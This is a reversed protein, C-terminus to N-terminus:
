LAFDIKTCIGRNTLRRKEHTLSSAHFPGPCLIGHNRRAGGALIIASRLPSPPAAMWFQPCMSMGALHIMPIASKAATPTRSGPRMTRTQRTLPRLLELPQAFHEERFLIKVIAHVILSNVRLFWSRMMTRCFSLLYVTQLVENNVVKYWSLDEGKDSM